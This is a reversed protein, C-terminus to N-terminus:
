TRAGKLHRIPKAESPRYAELVGRLGRAGTPVPLILARKQVAGLHHDMLRRAVDARGQELAAVIRAHEDAGCEGSHPRAYLALILSSRSVADRVFRALLSNGTLDGLKAHFEGSLRISAARDDAPVARERAVHEHLDRRGERTLNGALRAVVMGEIERRVEFIQRAEEISPTAVFAGRNRVFEVLGEGALRALAARVLTRSIAFTEGIASETLKAGPRLSQEVIAQRLGAYVAEGRDAPAAGARRGTSGKRAALTREEPFNTNL